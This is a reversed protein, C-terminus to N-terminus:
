SRRGAIAQTLAAGAALVGAAVVLLAGAPALLDAARSTTALRSLLPNVPPVGKAVMLAPLLVVALLLAYGQRRFVLRSCLLGVAIGTLACTLQAEVGVVLAAGTPRHSGVLFPIGLGLVTLVLCGLVATCVTGLLVRRSDGVNVVVVSRHVQDELGVLAITLWTSCVLMAGAAAGYTATLPGSDSSTLVAVLGTFLLVPALYRQSLLLTTCLYRVLATM